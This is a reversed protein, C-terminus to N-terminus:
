GLENQVYNLSLLLKKIQPINLRDTNHSTYDDIENLSPEGDTIYKEYNLNRNDM